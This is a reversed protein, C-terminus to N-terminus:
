GVWSSLLLQDLVSSRAGARYLERQYQKVDFLDFSVPHPAQNVIFQERFLTSFQDFSTIHGDPLSIFWDLATSSFTGMFLKYHM